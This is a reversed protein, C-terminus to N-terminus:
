QGTRCLIGLWSATESRTTGASNQWKMQMVPASPPPTITCIKLAPYTPDGNQLPTAQIIGFSLSEQTWGAPYPVTDGDATTGIGFAIQVKSTAITGFELVIWNGGTVSQGAVNSIVKTGNLIAPGNDALGLVFKALNFYDAFNNTGDTLQDANKTVALDAATVSGTVTLDGGISFDGSVSQSGLGAVNGQGDCYVPESAGNAVTVTAGPTGNLAQQLVVNQGSNNVVWYVKTLTGTSAPLSVTCPASLSGAFKLVSARGSSLQGQDITVSATSGTLTINAIGDIAQDILDFNNNVILGWLNVNDGVAQKNLSNSVTYTSAM